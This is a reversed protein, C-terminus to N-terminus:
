PILFFLATQHQPLTLWETTDLERRGWPSYGVLSRQGYFEGPLFIPTPQYKRRWSHLPPLYLLFHLVLFYLHTPQPRSSQCWSSRPEIELEVLTKHCQVLFNLIRHSLRGMQLIVTYDYKKPSSISVLHLRFNFSAWLAYLVSSDCLIHEIFIHAIPLPWFTTIRTLCPLFSRGIPLWSKLIHTPLNTIYFCKNPATELFSEFPILSIVPLDTLFSNYHDPLISFFLQLQYSPCWLHNLPHTHEEQNACCHRCYVTVYVYGKQERCTSHKTM